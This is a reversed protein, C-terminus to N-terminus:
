NSGDHNIREFHQWGRGDREDGWVDTHDYHNQGLHERALAENRNHHVYIAFAKRESEPRQETGPVIAMGDRFGQTVKWLKRPV